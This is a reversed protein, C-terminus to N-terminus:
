LPVIHDTKHFLRRLAVSGDRRLSLASRLYLLSQKKAFYFTPLYLTVIVETWAMFAYMLLLRIARSITLM